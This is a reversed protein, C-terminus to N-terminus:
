ELKFRNGQDVTDALMAFRMLSVNPSASWVAISRLVTVNAEGEISTKRLQELASPLNNQATTKNVPGSGFSFKVNLGLGIIPGWLQVLAEVSHKQKGGALVPCVHESYYYPYCETGHTQAATLLIEAVEEIFKRIKPSEREYLRTDNRTFSINVEFPLRSIRPNSTLRQRISELLVNKEQEHVVGSFFTKVECIVAYNKAKFLWDAIRTETHGTDLCEAHYGLAEFWYRTLSENRRAVSQQLRPLQMHIEDNV